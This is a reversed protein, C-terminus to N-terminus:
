IQLMPIQLQGQYMNMQFFFYSCFLHFTTETDAREMFTAEHVQRCNRFRERMHCACNGRSMYTCTRQDRLTSPILRLNYKVFLQRVAMILVRAQSVTNEFNWTFFWNLSELLLSLNPQHFITQWWLNFYTSFYHRCLSGTRNSCYATVFFFWRIPAKFEPDM